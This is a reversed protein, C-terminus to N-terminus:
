NGEGFMFHNSCSLSKVSVWLSIQLSKKLHVFGRIMKAFFILEEVRAFTPAHPTWLGPPPHCHHVPKPCTTWRKSRHHPQTQRHWMARQGNEDTEGHRACAHIKISTRRHKEENSKEPIKPPKKPSIKHKEWCTTQYKRPNHVEKAEIKHPNLQFYERQM